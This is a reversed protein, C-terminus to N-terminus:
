SKTAGKVGVGVYRMTLYAPVITLLVASDCTGGTGAGRTPTIWTSDDYHKHSYQVVVLSLSLSLSRITKM